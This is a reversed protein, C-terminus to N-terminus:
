NMMPLGWLALAQNFWPGSRRFHSVALEPNNTEYMQLENSLAFVMASSDEVHVDESSWSISTFAAALHNESSRILCLTPGRQNCFRHFDEARWGNISATYILTVQTVKRKGGIRIHKFLFQGQQLTELEGSQSKLSMWASSTFFPNKSYWSFNSPLFIRHRRSCNWLV